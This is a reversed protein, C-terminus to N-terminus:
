GFVPDTLKNNPLTKTLSYLSQIGENTIGMMNEGGLNIYHIKSNMQKMLEANAEKSYIGKVTIM